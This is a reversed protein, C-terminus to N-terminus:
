DFGYVYTPCSAGDGMAADDFTSLILTSALSEQQPSEFGVDM